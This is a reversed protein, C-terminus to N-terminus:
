IVLLDTILMYSSGSVVGSVVNDSCQDVAVAKTVAVVDSNKKVKQNSKFYCEKNIIVNNSVAQRLAM